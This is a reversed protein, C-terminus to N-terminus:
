HTINLTVNQSQVVNSGVGTGTVQLIYIGSANGTLHVGTCGSASM